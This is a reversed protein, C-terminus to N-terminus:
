LIPCSEVSHLSAISDKGPAGPQGVTKSDIKPWCDKVVKKCGLPDAAARQTSNSCTKLTKSDACMGYQQREDHGGKVAVSAVSM